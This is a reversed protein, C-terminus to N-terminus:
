KDFYSLDLTGEKFVLWREPPIDATEAGKMAASMLKAFSDELDLVLGSPEKGGHRDSIYKLAEEGYLDDMFMQKRDKPPHSVNVKTVHGDAGFSVIVTELGDERLLDKEIYTEPGEKKNWIGVTSSRASRGYTHQNYTFNKFGLESLATEPTMEVVLDTLYGTGSLWNTLRHKSLAAGIRSNHKEGGNRLWTTSTAPDFGSCKFGGDLELGGPVVMFYEGIKVRVPEDDIESSVYYLGRSTKNLFLRAGKPKIIDEYSGVGRKEIIETM